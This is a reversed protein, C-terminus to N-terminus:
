YKFGSKGIFERVLSYHGIVEPADLEDVYELLDILDQIDYKKIIENSLNRIDYKLYYKLAAIEYAIFTDLHISANKKNPMIYKDEGANVTPAKAITEAIDKGRFFKDRLMRRLLRLKQPHIIRGDPLQVRTRPAVYIGSAKDIIGDMIDKNLVHIGEIVILEDENRKMSGAFTRKHTKFDFSPLNIEKCEILKNIDSVLLESDLRDPEELQEPSLEGDYPKFYNDMNLVHTEIGKNDLYKEIKFATTTKGSGSPGSILIIPKTNRQSILTDGISYIHKDFKLDENIVFGERMVILSNLKEASIINM